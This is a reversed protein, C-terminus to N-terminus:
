LEYWNEGIDMSVELPVSLEVAGTMAERVITQVEDMEQRLVDLILEDHM